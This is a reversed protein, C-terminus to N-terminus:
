PACAERTSRLAMTTLRDVIDDVTTCYTDIVINATSRLLPEVLATNARIESREEESKGYPNTTRHAVRELMVDLPATLLVIVDFRDHFRGQNPVCGGVALNTATRAQALWRDMRAEDWVLDGDTNSIKWADYDTDVTEWEDRQACM